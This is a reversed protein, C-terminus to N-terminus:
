EILGFSKMLWVILGVLGAIVVLAMLARETSSSLFSTQQYYYTATYTANASNNFNVLGTAENLITYNGSPNLTLNEVSLTGTMLPYHALTLNQSTGIPYAVVLEETNSTGYVTQKVQPFLLYALLMVALVAVIFTMVMANAKKNM